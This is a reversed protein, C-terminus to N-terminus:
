VVPTTQKRSRWMHRFVGLLIFVVVAAAVAVFGVVVGTIIENRQKSSSQEEISVNTIDTTTTTTGCIDPTTCTCPPPTPTSSGNYQILVIQEGWCSRGNLLVVGCRFMTRNMKLKPSIQFSYRMTNNNTQLYRHPQTFNIDQYLDDNSVGGRIEKFGNHELVEPIVLAIIPHRRPNSINVQCTIDISSNENGMVVEVHDMSEQNNIIPGYLMANDCGIISYLFIHMLLVRYEKISNNVQRLQGTRIRLM